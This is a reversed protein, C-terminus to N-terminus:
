VSILCRSELDKEKIQFLFEIFLGHHSQVMLEYFEKHHGSNCTGSQHPSHALKVVLFKLAFDEPDVLCM